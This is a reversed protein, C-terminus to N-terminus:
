KDNIKVFFFIFKIMHSSYLFVFFLASETGSDGVHTPDPSPIFRSLGKGRLIQPSAAEFGRGARCFSLVGKEVSPMHDIRGHFKTDVNIICSRYIHMKKGYIESICLTCKQKLNESITYTRHEVQSCM